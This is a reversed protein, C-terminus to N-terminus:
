RATPSAGGVPVPASEGATAGAQSPSPSPTADQSSYGAVTTTVYDRAAQLSPQSVTEELRHRMHEDLDALAPESYTEVLHSLTLPGFIPLACTQVGTM